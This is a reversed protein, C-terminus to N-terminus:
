TLYLRFGYYFAPVTVILTDLRAFIGGLGPVSTRLESLGLDFRVMRGGLRGFVAGTAVIAGLAIATSPEFPPKMFTLAVFSGLLAGAFGFVAGWWTSTPSLSPMIEAGGLKANGLWSGAHYGALMVALALVLQEGDVTQRVLIAFSGLFGVYVAGFITGSLRRLSDPRLGRIVNAATIGIVVLAAALGIRSEGMWYAITPFALAGIALLMRSVQTGTGILVAALDLAAALVVLSAFIFFAGASLWSALLGAATLLGGVAFPLISGRRAPHPSGAPNTEPDSSSQSGM